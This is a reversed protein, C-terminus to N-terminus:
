IVSDPSTLCEQSDRLEDVEVNSKGNTERIPNNFDNITQEYRNGSRNIIQLLCIKFDDDLYYLLTINVISSSFMFCLGLVEIAPHPVLSSLFFINLLSLFCMMLFATGLTLNVTSHQIGSGRIKQVLRSIQLVIVLLLILCFSIFPLFIQHYIISRYSICINTFIGSFTIAFIWIGSIIFKYNNKIKNSIGGFYASFFWEILVLIVFLLVTVHLTSGMEDIFCMFDFHLSIKTIVSIIRYSSPTVLLSLFDAIAWNAIFIHPVTRLRNFKFITYFIIVDAIMGILCFIAFTIERTLFKYSDRYPIEDNYDMSMNVIEDYDM